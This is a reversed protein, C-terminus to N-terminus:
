VVNKLGLQRLVEKAREVQEPSAAPIASYPDQCGKLGWKHSGMKHYGLLEIREIVTFEKLFEGLRRIKDPTETVGPIVVHRVWVPKGRRELEFIFNRVPKIDVGTLEIHEEQGTEKIDLLVLDTLKLLDEVRDIEVFGSTDLATNLGLKKVGHFLAEVFEPQLTPEGGSATVGGGSSHYFQRYQSVERLVQDSDMEIGKGREWTDPNHCFKCRLPCGQLFIVYRIGPGDVTGFTEVSHVNGTVGM